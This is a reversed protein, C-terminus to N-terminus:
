SSATPQAASNAFLVTVRTGIGLSSSVAITAGHAEAIWKAISLGLGAGGREAVPSLQNRSNDVRYFRDFIRPLHQTDIGIGNDEVAVSPRGADLGVRVSVAGGRPTFKVANDLVLMLLRRLLVADGDVRAEEFEKIDVVVGKAAAIARAANAADLVIDDLSVRQTILPREGADARTLTFLDDVIDGLHRADSAIERLTRAYTASDRPQQMAVETRSRLVALPTRLEHAADAVFRRMQEITAEVPASSVRVLIWGGVGVLVIAFGAAIGFAAILGRYRDEIEVGPAVAAVVMPRGDAIVREAYVRLTTDGPVDREGRAHGNRAAGVAVARIWADATPPDIPTGDLNLLHIAPPASARGVGVSNATALRSGPTERQRVDSVASVLERDVQRSLQGTITLLLGAGLLGLIICFTAVYWLTLRTRLRNLTPVTM